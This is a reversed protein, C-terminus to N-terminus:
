QNTVLSEERSGEKQHRTDPCDILRADTLDACYGLQLRIEGSLFRHALHGMHRHQRYVMVSM